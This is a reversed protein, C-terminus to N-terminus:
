STIHTHEPAINASYLASLHQAYATRLNDDGEVRGYRANDPMAAAKALASLMDPHAPYGPVAQSMDIMDGHRGDYSAKWDLVTSVPPANLAEVAPNFM